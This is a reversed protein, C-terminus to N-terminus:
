WAQYPRQDSGATEVIQARGDRLRSAVKEPLANIRSNTACLTLRSDMARWREDMLRMFREMAWPTTNFEDLEDLALVEARILLDWRADFAWDRALILANPLNARLWAYDPQGGDMVKVVTPSLSRMYGYDQPRRHMVSWYVGLRTTM